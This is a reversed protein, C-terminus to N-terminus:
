ALQKWWKLEVASWRVGSEVVTLWSGGWKGWAGGSERGSRRRTDSGSLAQIGSARGSWEAGGAKEVESRRGKAVESWWSAASRESPEPM